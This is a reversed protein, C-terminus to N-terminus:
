VAMAGQSFKPSRTPLVVRVAADATGAMAAIVTQCLLDSRSPRFAEPECVSARGRRNQTAHTQDFM